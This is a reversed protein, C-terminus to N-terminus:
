MGMALVLIESHIVLEISILEAEFLVPIDKRLKIKTVPLEQNLLM